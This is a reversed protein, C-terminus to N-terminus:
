PKVKNLYDELLQHGKPTCIGNIYQLLFQKHIEKIDFQDPPFASPDIALKVQELRMKAIIDVCINDRFLKGEIGRILNDKIDRLIVEHQHEEFINWAEPYYRRMDYIVRTDINEFIKNISHLLLILEEVPDNAKTVIYRYDSEQQKLFNLTIGNIIEKKNSFQEYVTKKSIGIARAIDDMTVSKMGYRFFLERAKETIREKIEM